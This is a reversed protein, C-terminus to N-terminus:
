VYVALILVTCPTFSNTGFELPPQENGLLQIYISATM